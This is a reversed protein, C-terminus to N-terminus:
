RLQAGAIQGREERKFCIRLISSMRNNVRSHDAADDAQFQSSRPPPHPTQTMQLPPAPTEKPTAVRKYFQEGQSASGAGGAVSFSRKM